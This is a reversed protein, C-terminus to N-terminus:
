LWDKELHNYNYDMMGIKDTLVRKCAKYQYKTEEMIFIDEVNEMYLDKIDSREVDETFIRKFNSLEMKTDYYYQSDICAEGMDFLEQNRKSIECYAKELMPIIKMRLDYSKKFLSETKVSLEAISLNEYKKMLKKM